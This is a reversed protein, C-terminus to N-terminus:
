DDDKRQWSIHVEKITSIAPVVGANADPTFEAWTQGDDYSVLPRGRDIKWRVFSVVREYHCYKEGIPAALFDCDHPRKEIMVKDSDVGDFM